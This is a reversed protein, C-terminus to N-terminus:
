IIRMFESKDLAKESKEKWQGTGSPHGRSFHITLSGDKKAERIRRLIEEMRKVPVHIAEFDKM